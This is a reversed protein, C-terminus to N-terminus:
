PHMILLPVRTKYTIEDIKSGKLLRKLFPEKNIMKATLDINFLQVFTDIVISSDVNQINHFELSFDDFFSIIRESKENDFEEIDDKSIKLIHIKSKHKSVIFDFIQLNNEIFFEEDETAFLITKLKKFHYNMPIALVPCNINRIVNLANSGFVIESAGTAGNTGMVILDINYISVAQKVSLTFTDYDCITKYTYKENRYKIRFDEILKSLAKKPNKIIANYVSSTSLSSMLDVTSYNSVKHVHLVYFNIESGRFLDLAYNIANQANESFDTLM